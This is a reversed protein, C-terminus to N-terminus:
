SPRVKPYQLKLSTVKFKIRLDCNTMAAFLSLDCAWCAAMNTKVRQAVQRILYPRRFDLKNEIKVNRQPTVEVKVGIGNGFQRPHIAATSVLHGQTSVRTIAWWRLETRATGPSKLLFTNLGSWGMVGNITLSISGFKYAVTKRCKTLWCGRATSEQVEPKLTTFCKRAVKTTWIEAATVRISM